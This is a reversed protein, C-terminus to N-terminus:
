DLLILSSSDEGVTIDDITATPPTTKPKPPPAVWDGVWIFNDVFREPPNPLRALRHMALASGCLGGAGRCSCVILFLALNVVQSFRSKAEQLQWTM